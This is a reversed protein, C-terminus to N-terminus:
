NRHSPSVVSTNWIHKKSYYHKVYNHMMPQYLALIKDIKRVLTIDATMLPGVYRLPSNHYTANLIVYRHKSPDHFEYHCGVLFAEKDNTRRECYSKLKMIMCVFNNERVWTNDHAATQNDGGQIYLPLILLLQLRNSDVLSEQITIWVKYLDIDEAMFGVKWKLGVHRQQYAHSISM